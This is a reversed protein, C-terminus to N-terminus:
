LLFRHIEYFHRGKMHVTSAWVYIIDELGAQFWLQMLMPIFTLHSLSICLQVPLQYKYHLFIMSCQSIFFYKAIVWAENSWYFWIAPLTHLIFLGAIGVQLWPNSSHKFEDFMLWCDHQIETLMNKFKDQSRYYQRRMPEMKASDWTQNMWYMLEIFHFQARHLSHYLRESFTHSESSSLISPQIIDYMVDLLIVFLCYM